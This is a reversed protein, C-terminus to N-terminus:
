IVPPTLSSVGPTVNAAVALHVRLFGLSVAASLVTAGTTVVDDVLIVPFAPGQGRYAHVPRRHDGGARRTTHLPSRLLNLVPAGTKAAIAVALAMAPDVGYRLHRSVARPVPVLPLAPIRESVMAAVIAPYGGVGRYKLHHVLVKAPGVHLFAGVVRLGGPLVREPAPVLYSRCGTCVVGRGSPRYCVQCLM